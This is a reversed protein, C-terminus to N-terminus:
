KVLRLYLSGRRGQSGVMGTSVEWENSDTWSEAVGVSPPPTQPLLPRTQNM